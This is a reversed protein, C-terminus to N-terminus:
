TLAPIHQGQHMLGQGGVCRAHLLNRAAIHVTYLLFSWHACYVDLVVLSIDALLDIRPQYCRWCLDVKFRLYQPATHAMPINHLCEEAEFAVLVVLHCQCGCLIRTWTAKVAVQTHVMAMIM